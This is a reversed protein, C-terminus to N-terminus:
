SGGFMGGLGAGAMGVGMPAGFGSLMMGLGIATGLPNSYIPKRSQTTGGYNGGVLSLYQQLDSFPGSRMADLRAQQRAQQQAGVGQLIGGPMTGLQAIGPMMGLAQASYSLAPSYAGQLGQALQGM